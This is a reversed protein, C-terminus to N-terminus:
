SQTEGTELKGGHRDYNKSYRRRLVDLFSSSMRLNPYREQIGALKTSDVDCAVGLVGM